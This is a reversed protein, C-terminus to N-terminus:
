IPASTQNIMIQNAEEEDKIMKLMKLVKYIGVIIGICFYGYILALGAIALMSMGFDPSLYSLGAGIHNWDISIILMMMVLLVALMFPSFAFVKAIQRPAKGRSWLGLGIALLTYPAIWIVIGIAYYFVPALLANWAASLEQSSLLFAILACIVWSMYPFLLALGLFTKPKM